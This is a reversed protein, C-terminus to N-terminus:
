SIDKIFELITDFNNNTVEISPLNYRDFNISTPRPCLRGGAYLIALTNYQKGNWEFHKLREESAPNVPRSGCPTAIIKIKDALPGVLKEWYVIAQGFDKDIDNPCAYTLKRHYYSHNAIEMGNNILFEIKQKTWKPQHFEERPIICFIAHKGFEPHKQYFQLLISIACDPDIIINGQLDKIYRFQSKRSDDFRLIVVKKNITDQSNNIIDELKVTVYGAHYLKELHRRFNEPTVSYRSQKNDISHYMLIPIGICSERTGIYSNLFFIFLSLALNKYAIINNYM